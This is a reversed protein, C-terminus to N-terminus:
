SIKMGWRLEFAKPDLYGKLRRDPSDKLVDRSEWLKKIMEERDRLIVARARDAVNVKNM